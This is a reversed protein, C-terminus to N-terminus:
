RSLQSELALLRVKRDVGWRYGSPSGDTRIVRHCPIALAIPNAGCAQAVARASGPAGIRRAIEAYTATAGVPVERLAQWVRQQFATGRVDLPLALGLGPNEVFGVVAAVWREFEDDGGVLRARAYRDQFDQLLVQPDNGLAIECIGKDTAAVLLAGLACQGLAFRIRLGAGQDRFQTPTMGLMANTNEYFRGSSNFGADYMATTVTDGRALEARTRQTRVAKAYAKPTIGTIAKFVRHFHFRSLGARAALEALDVTADAQLARCAQAVLAAHTESSAAPTANAPGRAPAAHMAPSNSELSM